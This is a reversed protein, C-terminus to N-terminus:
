TITGAPTNNLTITSLDVEVTGSGRTAVNGLSNVTASSGSSSVFVNGSSYNTIQCGNFNITGNGINIHSFLKPGSNSYTINSNLITNPIGLNPLNFISWVFSTADFVTESILRYDPSSTGIDIDCFLLGFTAAETQMRGILSSKLAQIWIPVKSKIIAGFDSDKDGIFSNNVSLVAGGLTTNINIAPAIDRWSNSGSNTSVYNSRLYTSNLAYIKTKYSGSNNYSSKINIASKPVGEVLTGSAVDLGGQIDCASIFFKFIQNIPVSTQVSIADSGSVFNSSGSVKGRIFLNEFYIEPLSTDQDIIINIEGNIKAVPNAINFINNDTIRSGPLTNTRIQTAGIIRLGNENGARDIFKTPRIVVDEKYTGQKPKIIIPSYALDMYLDNEYDEALQDLAEQITKFKDEPEDGVTYKSVSLDDILFKVDKVTGSGEIKERIGKKGITIIKKAM